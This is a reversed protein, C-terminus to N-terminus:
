QERIARSAAPCPDSTSPSENDPEKEPEKGPIPEGPRLRPARRGANLQPQKAHLAMGEELKRLTEDADGLFRDGTVSVTINGTDTAQESTMMVSRIYGSLIAGEKVIERIRQAADMRVSARTGEDQAIESLLGIEAKVDWAVALMADSINPLLFMELAVPAKLQGVEADILREDTKM